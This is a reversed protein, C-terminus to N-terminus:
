SSFVGILVVRRAVSYKLPACRRPATCEVISARCMPPFENFVECPTVVRNTVSGGATPAGFLAGGSNKSFTERLIAERLRDDRNDSKPIDPERKEHGCVVLAEPDNAVVKVDVLHRSQAGAIGVDVINGVFSDSRHSRRIEGGIHAQKACCVHDHDCDRRVSIAFRFRRRGSSTFCGEAATYGGSFADCLDSPQHEMGIDRKLWNEEAYANTLLTRKWALYQSRKASPHLALDLFPITSELHDRM